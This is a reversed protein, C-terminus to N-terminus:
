DLYGLEEFRPILYKVEELFLDLFYMKKRFDNSQMVENPDFTNNKVACIMPFFTTLLFIDYAKHQAMQKWFEASNPLEGKFGIKQLTEVFTKFYFNLLDKYNNKRCDAGMLMYISYILDVTIPCLNSIQYDLLMIDEFSGNTPNHKFMMNRLHFDGHCLVYYGDPKKNVRYEQMVLKLRDLHDNNLREFIPVYKSYEPFKKLMEIFNSIGATMFPDEVINPMEFLGYKFEQLYEPNEHLIHFSIAHLKALKTFVAKLEDVTPDRDRMVTYGQPVLDEFIMVQRPELSYYVCPACLRTEDGVERLIKEFKPLVKTYMGIETKFLHSDGLMDKKHGDVEPMTKIILSKSLDGKQTTYSINGRFMVSAYHDGKASAPSIKLETVKVEPANEYQKIVEEFYQTNLWEPAELEDSNYNDNNTSSDM